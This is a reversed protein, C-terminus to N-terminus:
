YDGSIQPESPLLLRCEEKENDYMAKYISIYKPNGRLVAENFVTGYKICDEFIDDFLINTIADEGRPHYFYYEIESTYDGDAPMWLWFKSDFESYQVPLGNSSTLYRLDRYERHGGKLPRLPEQRVGSSNILVITVPAKFRFTTPYVLFKDDVELTQSEDTETLADLTKSLNNLTLQIAIDLADSGEALKGKFAKNYFAIIDAKIDGLAAM